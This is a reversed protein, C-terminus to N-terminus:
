KRERESFLKDEIKKIKDFVLKYNTEMENEYLTKDVGHNTACKSYIENRYSLKLTYLLQPYALFVEDPIKYLIDKDSLASTSLASALDYIDVCELGICNEAKVKAIKYGENNFIHKSIEGGLGVNIGVCLVNELSKISEGDKEVILHSFYGYRYKDEIVTIYKNKRELAERIYKQDIRLM